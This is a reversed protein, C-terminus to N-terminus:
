YARQVNQFGKEGHEFRASKAAIVAQETDAWWTEHPAPEGFFRGHYNTICMQLSNGERDIVPYPKNEPVGSLMLVPFGTLEVLGDVLKRPTGQFHDPKIEAWMHVTELWFDPLYPIGCISYGDKEYEWKMPLADFFVSWRAELRSRFRYGKYETQIPKIQTLM